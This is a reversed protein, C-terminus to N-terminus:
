LEGRRRRLGKSEVRPEREQVEALWRVACEECREASFGKFPAPLENRRCELCIM